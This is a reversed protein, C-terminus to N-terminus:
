RKGKDPPAAPDDTVDHTSWLRGAEDRLIFRDTRLGSILNYFDEESVEIKADRVRQYFEEMTYQGSVSELLRQLKPRQIYFADKRSAETKLMALMVDMSFNSTDVLPRYIGNPGLVVVRDKQLELLNLRLADDQIEKKPLKFAQLQAAETVYLVKIASFTAGTTHSIIKYILVRQWRSIEESTEKQDHQYIAFALAAAAFFVSGATLWNTIKSDSM